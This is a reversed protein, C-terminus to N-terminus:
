NYCTYYTLYLMYLSDFRFFIYLNDMDVQIVQAFKRQLMYLRDISRFFNYLSDLVLKIVQIFQM